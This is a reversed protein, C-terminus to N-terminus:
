VMRLSEPAANGVVLNRTGTRYAGLEEITRLERRWELFDRAVTKLM